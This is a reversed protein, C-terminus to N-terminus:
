VLAFCLLGFSVLVFCPLGFCAFWFLAFWVFGFCLLAFWFLCVLAFCAIWVLVFWGFGFCVMSYRLLLDKVTHQKCGNLGKFGSNFGM